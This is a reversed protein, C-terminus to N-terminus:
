NKEYLFALKQLYFSQFDFEHLELDPIQMSQLFGEAKLLKNMSLMSQHKQTKLINLLIFLNIRYLIKMCTNKYTFYLKEHIRM